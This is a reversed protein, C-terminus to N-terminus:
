SEDCAPFGSLSLKGYGDVSRICLTGEASLPRAFFKRDETFCLTEWAVTRTADGGPALQVEDIEPVSYGLVTVPPFLQYGAPCTVTTSPEWYVDHPISDENRFTVDVQIMVVSALQPDDDSSADPHPGIRPEGVSITLTDVIRQVGSERTAEAIAMQQAAAEAAEQEAKAKFYPHESSTVFWRGFKKVTPTPESNLADERGLARVRGSVYVTAFSTDEEYETQMSIDRFSIELQGPDAGTLLAFLGQAVLRFNGVGIAEDRFDPDTADLVKNEDNEAVGDLMLRVTGEPSDAGEESYSGDFTDGGSAPSQEAAPSRQPSDAAPSSDGGGGSATALVVVTVSITIAAAGAAIIGLVKPTINM